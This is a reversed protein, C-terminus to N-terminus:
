AADRGAMGGSAPRALTAAAPNWCTDDRVLRHPDAIALTLPLDNRLLSADRPAPFPNNARAQWCGTRVSQREVSLADQQQDYSTSNVFEPAAQAAGRQFRAASSGAQCSGGWEMVRNGINRALM